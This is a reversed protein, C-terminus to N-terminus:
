RPDRNTGATQARAAEGVAASLPILVLGHMEATQAFRKIRELSFPLDSAIGIAIGKERAITVLKTLNADIADQQSTGDLILDARVAPLGVETALSLGLSRASSGDDIYFLGRESIERLVPRFTAATSTFKGGLFNAVGTYGTFRSLLWHLNDTNEAKSAAALLTHAGPNNQPYGFPEMPLQLIVEHGAERAQRVQRELDHGYPAFALTVPGPLDGIAATTASDSLGVGGVVLAIRPQNPMAGGPWPRAYVEAPRAGDSGIRPLLGYHSKEVLRPDPAPALRQALVEPVNIILAGPPKADGQRVVKVGSQREVDKASIRGVRQAGISATTENSVGAGTGPGPRGPRADQSAEQRTIPARAHPEGGIPDGYFNLFVLGSFLLLGVVSFFILRFPWQPGRRPSRGFGLPGNLDDGAAM